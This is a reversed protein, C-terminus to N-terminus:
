QGAPSRALVLLGLTNASVVRLVSRVVSFSVVIHGRWSWGILHAARGLGHQGAVPVVFVDGLDPSRGYM